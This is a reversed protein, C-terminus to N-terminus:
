RIPLNRRCAYTKVIDPQVERPKIYETVDRLFLAPAIVINQLFFVFAAYKIRTGNPLQPVTEQENREM